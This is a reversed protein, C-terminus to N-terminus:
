LTIPEQCDPADSAPNNVRTSVPYATLEGPTFPCLLPRLRDIDKTTPDLWDNSMTWAFPKPHNNNVAIYKEIVLILESRKDLSDCWAAPGTSVCSRHSTPEWDLRWVSVGGDGSREGM